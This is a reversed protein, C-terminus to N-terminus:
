KSMWRYFSKNVIKWGEPFELLTMYDNFKTAGLNMDIRAIAVTGKVEIMAITRPRGDAEHRTGARMRALYDAIPVIVIGSDTMFTMRAQPHFATSMIDADGTSHAKIYAELPIRAEKEDARHALLPPLAAGSCLAIGIVVALIRNRAIM